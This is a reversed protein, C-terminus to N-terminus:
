RGPCTRLQTARQAVYALPQHSESFSQFYTNQGCTGHTNISFSRKGGPQSATLDGRREGLFSPLKYGDSHQGLGEGSLM